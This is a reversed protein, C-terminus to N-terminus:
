PLKGEPEYSEDFIEVRYVRKKRESYPKDAPYSIEMNIVQFYKLEKGSSDKALGKSSGAASIKELKVSGTASGKKYTVQSTSTGSATPFYAITSDNKVEHGIGKDLDARLLRVVCSFDTVTQGDAETLKRYLYAHATGNNLKIISSNKNANSTPSFKSEVVSDATGDSSNYTLVDPLQTASTTDNHHMRIYAEMAEAAEVLLNEEEAQRSAKMGAPFLVLVTSLGLSIVLMALAVEVMNFNFRRFSKKSKNMFM